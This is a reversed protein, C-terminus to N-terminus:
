VATQLLKVAAKTFNGINQRIAAVKENHTTAANVAAMLRAFEEKDGQTPLMKALADARIPTIAALEESLAENTEKRAKAAAEEFPNANSPM